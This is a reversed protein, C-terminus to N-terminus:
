QDPPPEPDAVTSLTKPRPAVSYDDPGFSPPEWDDADREASEAADRSIILLARSFLWLLRAVRGAGLCMLAMVGSAVVKPSAADAPIAIAAGLAVVGLGAVGSTFLRSMGEGAERFVAVLRNGPSIAYVITAAAVAVGLLGGALTSVTQYWVARTSDTTSAWGDGVVVLGAVFGVVALVLDSGPHNVVANRLPRGDDWKAAGGLKLPRM